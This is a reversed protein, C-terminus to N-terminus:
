AQPRLNRVMFPQGNSRRHATGDSAASAPVDDGVSDPQSWRHTAVSFVLAAVLVGITAYNLKRGTQHTISQSRDVEKDRKLGEPTLEYAWAFILAIPLGIALRFILSKMVWDPVGFSDFALEAVQAVLWATVVYAVAVRVVNRRQLESLFSM